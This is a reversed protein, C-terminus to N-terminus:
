GLQHVEVASLVGLEKGSHDKGSSFGQSCGKSIQTAARNVSEFVPDEIHFGDLTRRKM